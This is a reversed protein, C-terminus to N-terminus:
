LASTNFKRIWLFAPVSIIVFILAFLANLPDGFIDGILFVFSGALFILTTWPYGWVKFPRPLQPEKKRLVFLASFGAFYNAVYFFASIAILIEFTGSVILIIVFITSLLLAPRPTGSKSVSSIKATFLKDRGLGYIIRTAILLVANLISVLAAISLVTIIQGGRTGFLAIAASTAPAISKALESVPLVYLLGANVLLYITITILVGGLASLPLNKGPNKDEETFYVASYWGDYTFIISQLAIIFAFFVASITSPIKVTSIATTSIKGGWIFCAAVLALFGLAKLLSTIQQTRSGSNLGIWQIAAFLLLIIIAIIKLYNSLAPFLIVFFEGTAIAISALSASTAIWDSWGIVFGGYDGFARRVFVYWGGAKPIMTGLEIVSVTGLLAYMGGIIWASIILWGSGLHAAVIGPTRLIGVGITGGITVAIGFGVGLIKKLSSGDAPDKYKGTM